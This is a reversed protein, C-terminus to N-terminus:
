YTSCFAAITLKQRSVTDDLFLHIVASTTVTSTPIAILSIQKSQEVLNHTITERKPVLRASFLSDVYRGVISIM